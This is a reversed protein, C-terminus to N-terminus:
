HSVGPVPQVGEVAETPVPVRQDHLHISFAVSIPYSLAKFLTPIGATGWLM